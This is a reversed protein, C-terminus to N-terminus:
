VPVAYVQEDHNDEEEKKEFDKETLSSAPPAFPTSMMGMLLSLWMTDTSSSLDDKGYIRRTLSNLYIEMGTRQQNILGKDKQPLNFFEESNILEIMEHLKAKLDYQEQKM